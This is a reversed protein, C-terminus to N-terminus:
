YYVAWHIYVGEKRIFKILDGPQLERKQEQCCEDGKKNHERVKSFNHTSCFS